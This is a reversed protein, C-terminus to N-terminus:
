HCHSGQKSAIKMGKVVDTLSKVVEQSAGRLERILTLEANSLLLGDVNNRDLWGDPLDLDAEMRRAEWAALNKDGREVCSYYSQSSLGLTQSLDEQRVNLYARLLRLNESRRSADVQFERPAEQQVSAPIAAQNGRIKALLASLKENTPTM